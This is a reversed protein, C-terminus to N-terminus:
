YKRYRWLMFMVLVLVLLAFYHWEINQEITKKQIDDGQILVFEDKKVQVESGSGSIVRVSGEIVQITSYYKAAELRYRSRESIIKSNLTNIESIRFADIEASGKALVLNELDLISDDYILIDMADYANIKVIGQVVNIVSAQNLLESKFESFTNEGRYLALIDGSSEIVILGDNAAVVALSFIFLILVGIGTTLCKIKQM